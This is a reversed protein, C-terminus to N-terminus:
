KHRSDGPNEQTLNRIVEEIASVVWKATQLQPHDNPFMKELKAVEIKADLLRLRLASFEVRWQQEVLAKQYEETTTDLLKQVEEIQVKLPQLRDSTDTYQARQLALELKMDILKIRLYLLESLYVDVVSSMAPKPLITNIRSDDQPKVESFLPKSMQISM